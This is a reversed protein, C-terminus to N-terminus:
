FGDDCVGGWEGGEDGGDCGGWSGGGDGGDCFVVRRDDLQSLESGGDIKKHFERLMM